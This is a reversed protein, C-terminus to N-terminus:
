RSETQKDVGVCLSTSDLASPAIGKCLAEFRDVLEVVPGSIKESTILWVGNSKVTDYLVSIGGEDVRKRNCKRCREFQQFQRQLVRHPLYPSILGCNRDGKLIKVSTWALAENNWTKRLKWAWSRASTVCFCRVMQRTSTTCFLDM